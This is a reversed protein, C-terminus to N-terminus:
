SLETVGSRLRRLEGDVAVLETFLEDYKQDGIEPQNLTYYLYDHKRIEARSQEIRKKADQAM